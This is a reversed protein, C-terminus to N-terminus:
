FELSHWINRQDTNRMLFNLKSGGNGGREESNDKKNRTEQMNDHLCDHLSVYSAVEEEIFSGVRNGMAEDEKNELTGQM